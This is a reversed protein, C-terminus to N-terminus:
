PNLTSKLEVLAAIMKYAQERTVAGKPDLLNNAMGDLIGQSLCIRMPTEAWRSITSADEFIPVGKIGIQLPTGARDALKVVMAALQERTIATDPKFNGTGDGSVIGLQWAILVDLDETDRFPQKLEYSVGTAKKGSLVEYFTVALRAFEQRTLNAQYGAFYGSEIRGWAKLKSVPEEAWPSPKEAPAGWVPVIMVCQLGILIIMIIQKM